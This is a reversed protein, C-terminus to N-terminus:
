SVSEEFRRRDWLLWRCAEFWAYPVTVFIVPLLLLRRLARRREGLYFWHGGLGGLLFALAVAVLRNPADHWEIGMRTFLRRCTARLPAAYPRFMLTRALDSPGYTIGPVSEVLPQGHADFGVLVGITKHPDASLMALLRRFRYAPLEPVPIPRGIREEIQALGARQEPASGLLLVISKSRPTLALVRDLEWLVGPSSGLRMLVLESRDLMDLVTQQWSDHSAYLRAAGLEPLREGPKGIAVVPGVRQLIFALEQEPSTLTLTGAAKGFVRDQWHHGRVAMLGDDTFARLYVVPARPDRRLAEDATLADWRQSRRFVQMVAIFLLLALLAAAVVWVEGVRDEFSADNSVLSFAIVPIGLNAALLILVIAARGRRDRWPRMAALGIALVVAGAVLLNSSVFFVLGVRILDDTTATLWLNVVERNSLWVIGPGALAMLTLGWAKLRRDEPLYPRGDASCV